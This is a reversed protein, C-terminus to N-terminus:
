LAPVARSGGDLRPDRDPDREVPGDRDPEATVDDFRQAIGAVEGGLLQEQSQRDAPAPGAPELCRAIWAVRPVRRVHDQGPGGALVDEDLDPVAEVVEAGRDPRTVSLGGFGARVPSGDLNEPEEDVRM